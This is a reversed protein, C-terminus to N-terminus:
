RRAVAPGDSERVLDCVRSYPVASIEAPQLGLGQSALVEFGSETLFTSLREGVSTVYPHAVAIRRAGVARLADAAAGSTTTASEAGEDLLAQRLAREGTVGGVFSCATCLYVVARVGLELVERTPRRLVDPQNLASVLALAERDTTSATRSLHPTVEGPM